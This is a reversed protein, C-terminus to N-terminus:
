KFIFVFQGIDLLYTCCQYQLSLVIPLPNPDIIIKGLKFM